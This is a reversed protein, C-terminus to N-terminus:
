RPYFDNSKSVTTNSIWKVYCLEKAQMPTREIVNDLQIVDCFRGGEGWGGSVVHFLNRKSERRGM